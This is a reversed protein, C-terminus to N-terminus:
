GVLALIFTLLYVLSVLAFEEDKIKMEEEKEQEQEEGRRGSTSGM